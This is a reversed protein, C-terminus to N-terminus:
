KAAAKVARSSKKQETYAAYNKRAVTRRATNGDKDRYTAFATVPLTEGTFTDKMTGEKSVTSATKIGVTKAAKTAKAAKPAKPAKDKAAKTVKGAKEAKPKPAKGTQSEKTIPTEEPQTTTESM